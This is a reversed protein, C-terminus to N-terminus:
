VIAKKYEYYKTKFDELANHILPDGTAWHPIGCKEWPPPESPATAILSDFSSLGSNISPKPYYGTKAKTSQKREAIVEKISSLKKWRPLYEELIFLRFGKQRLAEAVTKKVFEIEQHCQECVTVLDENKADWPEKAYKWHHVNLTREDDGCETCKFHDRQMIELRKRQWRPDRLKESYTKMTSDSIPQPRGPWGNCRM